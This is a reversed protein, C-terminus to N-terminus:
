KSHSRNSNQINKKVSNNKVKALVVHKKECPGGGSVRSCDFSVRAGGRRAPESLAGPPSRISQVSGDTTGGPLRLCLIDAIFIFVLLVVILQTDGDDSM